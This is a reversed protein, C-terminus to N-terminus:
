AVPSQHREPRRSWSETFRGASARLSGSGARSSSTEAAGALLPNGASASRISIVSSAIMAAGSAAWVSSRSLLRPTVIEISSKPVPWVESHWNFSRATSSSLISREKVRVRVRPSPFGIAREVM